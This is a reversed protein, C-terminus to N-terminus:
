HPPPPEETELLRRLMEEAEDLAHEVKVWNADHPHNRIYRAIHHLIRAARLVLILDTEPHAELTVTVVNSAVAMM